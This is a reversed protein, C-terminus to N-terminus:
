RQFREHRPMVGLYVLEGGAGLLLLLEPLWGPVVGLVGLGAAVAVLTILFVLNWTNFLAEKTYNVDDAM